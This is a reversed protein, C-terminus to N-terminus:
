EEDGKGKSVDVEGDEVSESNGNIYSEYMPLLKDYSIAGVVAEALEGDVIFYTTPTAEFQQHLHEDILKTVDDFEKKRDEIEYLEIFELKVGADDEMERLTTDLYHQCASCTEDGLVFAFTEKNEIRDLIKAPEVYTVPDTNKESKNGKSESSCGAVVLVAILGLALLLRKMIDRRIIEILISETSSFIMTFKNYWESAQM